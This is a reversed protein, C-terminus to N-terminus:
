HHGYELIVIFTPPPNLNKETIQQVKKVKITGVRNKAKWVHKNDETALFM